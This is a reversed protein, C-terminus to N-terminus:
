GLNAYNGRYYLLPNPPDTPLEVRLVEGLIITHDGAPYRATTRCELGALSAELLAHGTALGRHHPVQDLQGALPRGPTALWSAAARGSADLLSIAFTEAQMIAGHFRSSQEVCILILMPQLSVSSFASATMAHDTGDALQTSVVTVGSAFRGMAAKFETVSPAPM